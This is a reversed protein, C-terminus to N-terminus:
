VGMEKVSLAQQIKQGLLGMTYPKQIMVADRADSHVNQEALRARVAEAGYGSMFVLPLRGGGLETIRRHAQAGGVRPMVVDFLLLDIKESYKSYIEIAEAGDRALLVQYGLEELLERALDRLTEEDEAVLITEREGFLLPVAVEAMEESAEATAAPLLISFTTGKGTRSSVNIFGNHREVIGLVTALGLGTGKGESKTTFFPEFIRNKTISDIGSGTDSIIIQVYRGPRAKPYFNLCCEGLTKNRTQIRIKGGGPMADRANVCLNMIVQEIQGGDARVEALQEDYSVAIEVDEGIIREIMVLIDRINQNLVINRCEFLKRHRSFTLLQRTLSAARNGAKEIELLNGSPDGSELKRLALQTNGIIATLMNNFDHAVGGTLTGIAELKQSQLLRSDIESLDDEEQVFEIRIRKSM